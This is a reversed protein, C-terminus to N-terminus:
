DPVYRVRVVGLVEMVTVVGAGVVWGENVIPVGAAGCFTPGDGDGVVANVAGKGFVWGGGGGAAM